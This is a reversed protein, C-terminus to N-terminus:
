VLKAWGIWQQIRSHMFDKDDGSFMELVPVIKKDLGV